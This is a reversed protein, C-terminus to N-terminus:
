CAHEVVLVWGVYLEFFIVEGIDVVYSFHTRFDEHHMTSHVLDNWYLLSAEKIAFINVLISILVNFEDLDLLYLMVGKM